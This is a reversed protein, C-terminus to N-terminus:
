RSKIFAYFLPFEARWAAENHKNEARIVMTMRAKTLGHLQNFVSMMDPVMSESESGGCYFYLRSKLNKGKAAITAKFSPAIWFSPSFIGASGFVKPYKLVAYFSILGGMSSGAISTNEWNRRTRYHRNVYPRLTKVIFDVYADGEGRGYKAMDYPSYENLRKDGGHDIGVVISEGLRSGLSDLAEDVGWEGYGSTARDFLNQGDHMYLVPYRKGASTYSAPLYIWIRRYRGLQPLYFATDIIHVQASATHVKPSKPFHNTWGAVSWEITTDSNVQFNRNGAPVGDAAAESAEWSGCTLKASYPGAPLQLTLTQGPSFRHNPSAPNWGNFDGALYVASGSLHYAPLHIIKIVVKYQASAAVTIGLLLLLFMWRGPM